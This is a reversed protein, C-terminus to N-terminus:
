HVTEDLLIGYRVPTEKPLPIRKYKQEIMEGVIGVLYDAGWAGMVQIAIPMGNDDTEVPVTMAPIGTINALVLYRMVKEALTGDLAGEWYGDPLEPATTPTTPCIVFDVENFINSMVTKLQNVCFDLSAQIDQDQSLIESVAYKIMLESDRVREKFLKKTNSDYRSANLEDRGFLAVHILFQLDLRNLWGFLTPDFSDINVKKVGRTELYSVADNCKAQVVQDAKKVWDDLVLMKLTKEDSSGVSDDLYLKRKNIIDLSPVTGTTIGVGRMIDKCCNASVGGAVLSSHRDYSNGLLVKNWTLKLAPLGCYAFPARNSGGGDSNWTWPVLGYCQALASGCSSGGVMRNKKDLGHPNYMPKHHSNRGFVGFGMAEQWMKWVRVGQRQMNSVPPCSTESPRLESGCFLRTCFSSTKAQSLGADTIFGKVDYESKVGFPIEFLSTGGSSVQEEVPDILLDSYEFGLAKESIKKFFDENHQDTRGRVQISREIAELYEDVTDPLNLECYSKDTDRQYTELLKKFIIDQSEKCEYRKDPDCTIM